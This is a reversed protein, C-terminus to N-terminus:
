EHNIYSEAFLNLSFQAGYYYVTHLHTHPNFTIKVDQLWKNRWISPTTARAAFKIRAVLEKKTYIEPTNSVDYEKNATM